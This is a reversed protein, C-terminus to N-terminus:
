RTTGAQTTESIARAAEISSWACATCAVSPRAHVPVVAVDSLERGIHADGVALDLQELALRPDEGPVLGGDTVLEQGAPSGALEHELLPLEDVPAVHRDPDPPRERGVRVPLASPM